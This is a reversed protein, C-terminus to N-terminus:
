DNLKILFLILRKKPSPINKKVINAFWKSAIM